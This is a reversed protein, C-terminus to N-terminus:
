AAAGKARDAFSKRKKTAAPAADPKLEDKALKHVTAADGVKTGPDTLKSMDLMAQAYLGRYNSALCALQATSHTGLKRLGKKSIRMFEELPIGLEEWLTPEKGELDPITAPDIIEDKDEKGLNNMFQNLSKRTQEGMPVYVDKAVEKASLAAGLEKPDKIVETPIHAELNKLVARPFTPRSRYGDPVYGLHKTYWHKLENKSQLHAPPGVMDKPDVKIATSTTGAATAAALDAKADKAAIVTDGKQEAPTGSAAKTREAFSKRRRGTGVIPEGTVAGVTVNPDWGCSDSAWGWDGELRRDNEAYVATDGNYAVVLIVGRGSWHTAIEQRIKSGKILNMFQGINRDCDNYLGEYREQLYEMAVLYDKPGTKDVDNHVFDGELFVVVSPLPDDAEKAGEVEDELLLFPQLYEDSEIPGENHGFHLYVEKAHMEPTAQAAMFDDVTPVEAELQCDLIADDTGANLITASGLSSQHQEIVKELLGRPIDHGANKKLIVGKNM